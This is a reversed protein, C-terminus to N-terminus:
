RKLQGSIGFFMTDLSVDYLEQRQAEFNTSLSSESSLVCVVEDLKESSCMNSEQEHDENQGQDGSPQKVKVTLQDSGVVRLESTEVCDSDTSILVPKADSDHSVVAELIQESQGPMNDQVPPSLSTEDHNQIGSYDVPTTRTNDPAGAVAVTGIEDALDPSLLSGEHVTKTTNPSHRWLSQCLVALQRQMNRQLRFFELMIMKEDAAHLRSLFCVFEQYNVRGSKQNGLLELVLELDDQGFCAAQMTDALKSNAFSECIDKKDVQGDGNTDLQRCQEQFISSSEAYKQEKTMLAVAEAGRRDKSAGKELYL